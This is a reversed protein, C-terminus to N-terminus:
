VGKEKMMKLFEKYSELSKEFYEHYPELEMSLRREDLKEPEFIEKPGFTELSAANFQTGYLIPLNKNSLIRDELYAINRKKIDGENCEKMLSLCQEQFNVDHDAHQVLLWSKHSIDEGVKSITPWGIKEIIKKMEETNNQDLNEPFIGTSRAEQDAKVMETIKNKCLEIINIKKDFNEMNVNYCFFAYQANKLEV